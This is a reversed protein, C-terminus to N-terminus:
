DDSNVLIKLLESKPQQSLESTPGKEILQGEQMVWVIGCLAKILSWDHSIVIYTLCSEKRLQHLLQVIQLQTQRDLAATPEDFIVLKPKRILARAIAVRQRQGGSCQHPYRDQFDQTLGVRELVQQILNNKDDSEFGEGIIDSISLRPNLSTYPDQFVYQICPRHMRLQNGNLQGWNKGMLIIEGSSPILRMLAHALTSKGSGSLGLLGVSQGQHITGSIGHLTKKNDARWQWRNKRVSRWVSLKSFECIVQSTSDSSSVLGEPWKSLLSKTYPHKPHNFIADRSGQECIVGDKLIILKDAYKKVLSLDHTVLVVAMGQKKCEVLQEMCQLQHIRDLATTPEDALLLRPQNILAVLILLRQRQGGSLEDPYSEEWRDYKPMGLWNALENVRELFLEDSSHHLTYAEKIQKGLTQVPNWSSLPEQLIYGIDGGRFNTIGEDNGFSCTHGSFNIEGFAHMRLPLLGILSRLLITKGAGSEGVVAVLEGPLIDLEVNQLVYQGEWQVSLHASLM